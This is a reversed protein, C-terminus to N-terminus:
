PNLWKQLASRYALDFRGYFDPGAPDECSSSGGLLQGVVYRKGDLPMFAASGSSGGETIGQQWRLGIFNGNTASSCGANSTCSASGLVSGLSFKLLDGSPHHLGALTAGTAPAAGFYSGAYVIGAPPAENLKLLAVDTAEAAYLLTAGGSLRRAGPNVESSGCAAARYFWDTVLSSATLQDSICHNASLFYPTGSSKADNLLTGTCLFANGNKVYVMRAVSRSQDLYDPMCSANITCSGAEGVKGTGPALESGAEALALTFHSLRPVAIQVAATSASAPIEIELTTEAGGFDPSWYTRAEAVAAGADANRQAMDRLQQASVQTADTAASGYFRLVSGDPLADVQVGLRVGHAGDAVFRLAAARTGRATAQWQLLASTAAASATDAVTRAAGIQLAVGPADTATASKAAAAGALPGLAVTRAAPTIAAQSASTAAAAKGAGPDYSEIRDTAAVPNSSGSGGGCAALALALPLAALGLVRTSHLTM